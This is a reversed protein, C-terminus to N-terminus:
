PLRRTPLGNGRAPFQNIENTLHDSIADAYAQAGDVNPHFQEAGSQIGVLGALTNYVDIGNLWSEFSCINHNAFPTSIPVFHMGKALALDRIVANLIGATERVQATEAQTFEFLGAVFASQPCPKPDLLLPYGTVFIEANPFRTLLADYTADLNDRVETRIKNKTEEIPSIGTESNPLLCNWTQCAAAILAFGADNGGISVFVADIENPNQVRDAQRVGDPSQYIPQDDQGFGQIDIFFHRSEAGSCAVNQWEFGSVNSAITEFSFSSTRPRTKYPWGLFARHCINGSPGPIRVATGPEYANSLPTDPDRAGEGSGYSDGMFAVKLPSVNAIVANGVADGGGWVANDGSIANPNVNFIPLGLDSLRDNTTFTSGLNPAVLTGGEAIPFLGTRDELISIMWRRSTDLLDPFNQVTIGPPISRYGFHIPVGPTPENYGVIEPGGGETRVDSGSGNFAFLNFTSADTVWPCVNASALNGLGDFGLRDDTTTAGTAFNGDGSVAGFGSLRSPWHPAGLMTLDDFEQPFGTFPSSWVAGARGRMFLGEPVLAPDQTAQTSGVILSCDDTVGTAQTNFMSWDATFAIQPLDIPLLSHDFELSGNQYRFLFGDTIEFDTSTQGPILTAFFGVACDGSANLDRFNITEHAPLGVTLMQVGDDIRWSAALTPGQARTPDSLPVEALVATEGDESLLIVETPLGGVRGLINEGWQLCGTPTGECTQATVSTSFLLPLVVAIAAQIRSSISRFTSHTGM